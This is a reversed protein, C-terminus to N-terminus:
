SAGAGLPLQSEVSDDGRLARRVAAADAYRRAPDKELCRAVIAAYAESVAPRLTRLAPTPENVIRYLLQSYDGGAFPRSGACMEHMIAGMAWVDARADTREGRIQEPAMYPLTGALHGAPHASRLSTVSAGSSG